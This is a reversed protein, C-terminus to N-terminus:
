TNKRLTSISYKRDKLNIVVVTINDLSGRYYSQLTISKAGYYPENLRERIFAVADENTFTDWLGDSALILFMPDHDDLDFTLIDPDAIVFKKDKLPYDGLARSTALIGAVRWVGNFTVLGGAKNIRQRERQQQPKHDFSLPIVNGKNDCMVGRSDGVNAVILKNDDLIAILATTGAVDMNKKAADILLSDAALVEDTLLKAYNIKQGDIYTTIDIKPPQNKLPRGPKVERTIPRVLSDLKELLEPDTINKNKMFDDTQSTSLTKRFSKKHENLNGSIKTDINVSLIEDDIPVDKDNNQSGGTLINKLEIVKKNINPILKDRAYDAAFQGGHGDFIAFLSVGTNNIDDNVVFRDEMHARHGQVAYAAVYGERLEWSIKEANAANNVLFQLKSVKSSTKGLTYHIKEFLSRSWVDVAQLYIIIIIVVAGCVIFEPKLIYTRMMRWFYGFPTHIGTPFGTPLGVAIKSMLKMYSLYTQYLVKDELEDDM